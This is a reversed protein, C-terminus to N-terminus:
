SQFLHVVTVSSQCQQMAVLSLPLSASASRLIVEVVARARVAFTVVVSVVSLFHVRPEVFLPVWAISCSGTLHSADSAPM